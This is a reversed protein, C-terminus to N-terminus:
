AQRSCCPATSRWLDRKRRRRRKRRSPDHTTETTATAIPQTRPGRTYSSTPTTVIVTINITTTTVRLCGASTGVTGESIEDLRSWPSHGWPEQFSHNQPTLGTECPLNALKPWSYVLSLTGRLSSSEPAASDDVSYSIYSPLLGTTATPCSPCFM